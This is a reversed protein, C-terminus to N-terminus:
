GRRRAMAIRLMQGLTTATAIRFPPTATPWTGTRVSEARTINNPVPEGIGSGSRLPGPSAITTFPVEYITSAPGPITLRAVAAAVRSEM